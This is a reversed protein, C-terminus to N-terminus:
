YDLRQLEVKGDKIVEISFMEPVVKRVSKKEAKPKESEPGPSLSALTKPITAGKTLVTELDTANRLAFQLKGRSSSLALKEGDEPSVALTYVDVPAPGGEGEEVKTGTALVPVKELVLKTTERKNRPDKVTVFVDVMNGPRILGSLGIVKDGKVAIARMGPKLIASVGGVKVNDPALKSELIPENPKLTVTVVRGSIADIDHFCGEPFTGKLYEVTKILKPRLKTGWNIETGAVVVPMTEVDSKVIKITGSRKGLWKYLHWSGAGTIVLALLVPLLAKWKGM